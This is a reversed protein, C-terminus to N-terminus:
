EAGLAKIREFANQGAESEPSDRVIRRYLELAKRTKGLRELNRATHFLADSPPPENVGRAPQAHRAEAEAASLIGPAARGSPAILSNLFEEVQRRGSTPLKFFRRASDEAQGRHFRVADTLTDARGDHLYPASDRFGWLPPTRWETGQAADADDPATPDYYAGSDDLLRGLDHLLLDSYIGAIGGLTSTHCGTCGVSSFLRRGAAVDPSSQPDLASPAPLGRVYSTLADCEEPTMDLGKATADPDLPSRGQHHGPVELGLEGACTQLVFERLTAVQAKWGFRGVKGDAARGTRGRIAPPQRRAAAALASDPLADILGLGFLPTPNRQTLMLQGPLFTAGLKTTARKLNRALADFRARDAQEAVPDYGLFETWWAAYKPEVSFHHLVVTRGDRFSPHRRVLANRDPQSGGIVLGSSAGRGVSMGDGQGIRIGPLNGDVIPSDVAIPAPTVLNVNADAPGAGGPGGQNHCALCSTANYVPGLGDGGHCRPDGAAWTRAFLERGLAQDAAAPEAAAASSAIWISVILVHVGAPRLTLM